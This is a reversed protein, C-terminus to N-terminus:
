MQLLLASHLHQRAATHDDPTYNEETHAHAATSQWVKVELMERRRLHNKWQVNSFRVKGYQLIFEQYYQFSELHM